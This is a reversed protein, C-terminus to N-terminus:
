VYIDNELRNHQYYCLIMLIYEDISWNLRGDKIQSIM